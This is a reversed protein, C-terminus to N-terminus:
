FVGTTKQDTHCAIAHRSSCTHSHRQTWPRGSLDKTAKRQFAKFRKSKGKGFTAQGKGSSLPIELNTATKPSSRVIGPLHPTFMCLGIAFMRDDM